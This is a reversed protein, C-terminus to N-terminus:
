KSINWAQYRSQRRKGYVLVCWALTIVSVVEALRWYWPEVFSIKLTGEYGAPLAISIKNNDGCLCPYTKKTEVDICRYYDYAFLPIMLYTDELTSCSVLVTTGNREVNSIDIGKGSVVGDEFALKVSSGNLLYEGGSVAKESNLYINSDYVIDGRCSRLILDMTHMGEIACISCIGVLVIGYMHHNLCKRLQIFCIGAVYTLTAIAITLFRWPFQISSVMKQIGPVATLLNWPFYATAMFCAIGAFALGIVLRKKDEKKWSDYVVCLGISILIIVIFSIGLAEPIRQATNGELADQANGVGKSPLSFLEYFSLGYSQIGYRTRDTYVRIDERSYDLFPILFGVNLGIALLVSKCLALINDKHLLKPLMTVLVLAVFICVMETSLIHSQIVGTIGLSLYLWGSKHENDQASSLIDVLGLIILPFFVSATYEGVAARLYLNLIYNISLTYMASCAVGSIKDHCIKSFCFFSILMRTLNVILMYAKYAYLIPVQLLCLLAPIYLFIDGYYVSVPYGYGNNWGPSIRVPFNGSRIGEALGAIRACHFPLDHGHPISFHFIGLSSVTFICLMGLIVWFNKKVREKVVDWYWVLSMAAHFICFALLLKLMGYLVSKRYNRVLVINEIYLSDNYSEEEAWCFNIRFNDIDGNVWMTFTMEDQVPNLVRSDAYIVPYYQGDTNKTSCFVQFSEGKTEYSITVDYVGSVLPETECYITTSSSAFYPNSTELGGHYDYLSPENLRCDKQHTNLLGIVFYIFLLDMVVCLVILIRKKNMKVIKM